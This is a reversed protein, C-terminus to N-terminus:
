FLLGRLRGSGMSGMTQVRGDLGMPKPGGWDTCSSRPYRNWPRAQHLQWCLREPAVQALSSLRALQSLGPRGSQPHPSFGCSSLQSREVDLRGRYLAPSGCLALSSAQKPHSFPLKRCISSGSLASPAWARLHSGVEDEPSRCGSVSPVCGWATVQLHM